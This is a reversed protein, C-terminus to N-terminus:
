QTGASLDHQPDQLAVALHSHKINRVPPISNESQNAGVRFRAAQVIRIVPMRVTRQADLPVVHHKPFFSSSRLSAVVDVPDLAEPTIGLVPEIREASHGSFVEM